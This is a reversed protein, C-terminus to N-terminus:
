FQLVGALALGFDSVETIRYRTGAADYRYDYNPNQAKGASDLGGTSEGTIFHPTETGLHATAQLQMFKSARWYFGLFAKLSFYDETQLLKGTADTLENYWRATSTYDASLRFDLAVRTGEAKNEGTVIEAGFAAGAVWPPRPGYKSASSGPCLAAAADSMQGNANLEAAHDCNSYTETSPRYSTVHFKVYPDAAGMRKSLATVFDIKFVNEGFPGSNAAKAYPSVNLAGSRGEAPDYMESTPFTFDIGVLWFPKTDDRADSLIGWALGLKLDGFGAGHYVTENTNFIPCTATACADGNANIPNQGTASRDNTQSDGLYYAYHWKTNSSLVIPIEVHFELDKWLGVAIRPLIAFTRRSYRFEPREEVSSLPVPGTPTYDYTYERTILARDQVYDAKITFDLDFPNEEDGSSAVRTAEAAAAPLALALLTVASLASLCAFRPM